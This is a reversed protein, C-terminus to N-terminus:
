GSIAAYISICCRRWRNGVKRADLVRPVVDPRDVAAKDNGMLQDVEASMNEGKRTIVNKLRGTVVVFGASCTGSTM